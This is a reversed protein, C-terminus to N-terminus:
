ISNSRSTMPSVPDLLVLKIISQVLGILWGVLGGIVDKQEFHTTFFFFIIEHVSGM